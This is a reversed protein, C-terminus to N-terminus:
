HMISLVLAPQARGREPPYAFLHTLRDAEVQFVVQLELQSQELSM